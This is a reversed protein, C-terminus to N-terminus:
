PLRRRRLRESRAFYDGLTELSFERVIEPATVERHHSVLRFKAEDTAVDIEVAAGYKRRIEPWRRENEDIHCVVGDLNIERALIPEYVSSWKLTRGLPDVIASRGGSHASAMFVNFDHAWIGLQSGGCYMSPFFVIEAGGAALGEIVDRFNLDFCIAIGLRGFDADFVPIGTGPTIGAELEGVTPHVKDYIGAVQGKRDLLVASNYTRGGRRTVLPCIVYMAHRRAIEAAGDIAPGPVAEASEFWGPMGLGLGTFTEPLCAIDPQFLGAEDLMALGNARKEELTAGRGNYSITAIRLNRSM